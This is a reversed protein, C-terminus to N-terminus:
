STVYINPVSIFVSEKTSLCHPDVTTNLPNAEITIGNYQIDCVCAFFFFFFIFLFYFVGKVLM